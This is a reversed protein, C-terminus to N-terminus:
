QKDNLLSTLRWFFLAAHSQPFAIEEEFYDLMKVFYRSEYDNQSLKKLNIIENYSHIPMGPKLKIIKIAVKMCNIQDYAEIVSGFSGKGILKKVYYRGKKLVSEKKVLKKLKERQNKRTIYNFIEQIDFTVMFLTKQSQPSFLFSKNSLDSSMDLSKYQNELSCEYEM